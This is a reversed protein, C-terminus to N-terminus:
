KKKRKKLRRAIWEMLENRTLWEPPEVPFIDRGKDEMLIAREKAIKVIMKKRRKTKETFHTDM